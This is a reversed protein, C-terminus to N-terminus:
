ASALAETPPLRAARLSPYVGAAMGILVASLCGGALPLPPIVVPWHQHAAYGVAALVGLLIGALAGLLSLAVSETLFQVRIHGRTAGLARRLGIDRRRELVSIVMTNAVGVGGVLLAIGALGLFLSSFTNRTARKAALADSPRSVQVQGPQEPFVTAPLVRRVDELHEEHAKVYLVTPNGEFRLLRRAAPWGTLVANDLDSSLPVSHLVGIVTFWARGIRVEPAPGTAPIEGIGLRHAAKHGLVATPFREDAADFYRGSLVKGGVVDLLDRRAALVSLGAGSFDEGGVLDSRQVEAHTNAVASVGTVPGIRRVMDVSEEPLRAQAGEGQFPQVRLLDSGLASIEDMLARQSSAPIGTVVVMTAVGISIGLASLAARLRRTRLGLLGLSLLDRPALRVPRVPGDTRRRPRRTTTRPPAAPTTM